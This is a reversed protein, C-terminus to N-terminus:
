LAHAIRLLSLSVHLDCDADEGLMRRLLGWPLAQLARSSVALFRYALIVRNAAGTAAVERGAHDAALGDGGSVVVAALPALVLHILGLDLLKLQLVTRQAVRGDVEPLESLPIILISAFM